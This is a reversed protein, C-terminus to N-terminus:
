LDAGCFLFEDPSRVPTKEVQVELWRRDSGDFLGGYALGLWAGPCTFSTRRRRSDSSGGKRLLGVRGVDSARRM